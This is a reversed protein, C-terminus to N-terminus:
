LPCIGRATKGTGLRDFGRLEKLSRGRARGPAWRRIQGKSRPECIAPRGRRERSAVVVQAPAPCTGMDTYPGSFLSLEGCLAILIALCLAAASTVIAGRNSFDAKSFATSLYLAGAAAMTTAIMM